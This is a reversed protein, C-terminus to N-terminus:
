VIQFILNVTAQKDCFKFLLLVPLYPISLFLLIRVKKSNRFYFHVIFLLAKFIIVQVVQVVDDKGIVWVRFEAVRWLGELGSVLVFDVELSRESDKVWHINGLGGILANFKIPVTLLSRRLWSIIIQTIGLLKQQLWELWNNYFM